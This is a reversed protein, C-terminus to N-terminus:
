GVPELIMATGYATIEAMSQRRESDFEGSGFRMAIVANAGHSAAHEKLAEARTENTMRLYGM